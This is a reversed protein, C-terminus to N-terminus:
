LCVFFVNFSTIIRPSTSRPAFFLNVVFLARKFLSRRPAICRCLHVGSRTPANIAALKRLTI